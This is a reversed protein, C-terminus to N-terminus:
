NKGRYVEQRLENIRSDVRQLESKFEKEIDLMKEWTKVMTARMEYILGNVGEMKVSLAELKGSVVDVDKREYKNAVDVSARWQNLSGVSNKIKEVQKILYGLFGLTVTGLLPLVVNILIEKYFEM